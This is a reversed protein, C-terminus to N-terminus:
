CISDPKSILFLSVIRVELVKDSTHGSVGSPIIVLVAFVVGGFILLAFFVRPSGPAVQPNVRSITVLLQLIADVIGEMM